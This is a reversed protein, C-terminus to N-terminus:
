IAEVRPTHPMGQPTRVFLPDGLQLRLRALWTGVTPQTQGLAEATPTVSGTRYLLELLQLQTGDLLALDPM